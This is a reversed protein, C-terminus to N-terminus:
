LKPIAPMLQSGAITVEGLVLKKIYRFEPPFVQSHFFYNEQEAEALMTVPIAIDDLKTATTVEEVKSNTKSLLPARILCYYSTVGDKM